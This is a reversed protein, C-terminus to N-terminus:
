ASTSMAPKRHCRIARCSSADKGRPTGLTCDAIRGLGTLAGIRRLGCDAMRLICFRKLREFRSSRPGLFPRLIAGRLRRPASLAGSTGRCLKRFLLSGWFPLQTFLLSGLETLETLLCSGSTPFNRSCAIARLNQKTRLNRVRLYETGDTRDGDGETGDIPETRDINVCRLAEWPPEAGRSVGPGPGRDVRSAGGARGGARKTPLNPMQAFFPASRVGRSSRPGIELGNRPGRLELKSRRLCNRMEM